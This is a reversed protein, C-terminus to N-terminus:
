KSRKKRDSKDPSEPGGPAGYINRLITGVREKANGTVTYSPFTLERLSGSMLRQPGSRYCSVAFRFKMTM